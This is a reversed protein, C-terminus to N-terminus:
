QQQQQEAEHADEAQWAAPLEESLPEQTVMPPAESPRVRVAVQLQDTAGGKYVGRTPPVDAYDRGIATRAHRAGAVLDNTPDFGVWGLGPLLAEVWAHTADAASRDNDEHRHFLYGSVYRCPIGLERALTIMVHAFDQCVGKRATLAEEIPSDVRTTQPAYSFARYIATNLQRVTTLPDELREIGLEQAFAHVAASPRSFHSPQLLDWATHEHLLAAMADWGGAPLRDPLEAPPTLEVLSEATIVLRTHQSPVNFHHIRNGLYDDYSQIRTKPQTQLQFQLCRQHAESRPQMRVEM